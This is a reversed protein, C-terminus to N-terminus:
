VSSVKSTFIIWSIYLLLSTGWFLFYNEALHHSQNWLFPSRKKLINERKNLTMLLLCYKSPLQIFVFYYPLIPLPSFFWTQGYPNEAYVSMILPISHAKKTLFYNYFFSQFSSLFSSGRDSMIVLCHLLIEYHFYRLTITSIPNWPSSGAVSKLPAPKVIQLM